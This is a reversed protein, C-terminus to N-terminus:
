EWTKLFNTCRPCKIQNSVHHSKNVTSNSPSSKKPYAIFAFRCFDCQYKAEQVVGDKQKVVEIIM